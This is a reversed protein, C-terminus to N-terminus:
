NLSNKESEHQFCHGLTVYISFVSSPHCSELRKRIESLMEMAKETKRKEKERRREEPKKYKQM